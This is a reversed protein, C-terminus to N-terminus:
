RPFECCKTNCEHIAKGSSRGKWYAYLNHQRDRTEVFKADIRNIILKWM